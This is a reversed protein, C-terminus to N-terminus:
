GFYAELDRIREIETLRPHPRILPEDDLKWTLSYPIYVAWIGTRLAPNIDSKPSNGIMCVRDPKFGEDKMIKQYILDNKEPVVFAKTFFQGLGSGALKRNQEEPDGKTLLFLPYSGSLRHLIQRVDRFLVPPRTTHARFKHLIRRYSRCADASGSLFDHKEFLSELIFVFNKSGYGRDTVVQREFDDFVRDFGNNNSSYRECLRIFDARAREYYFNNKWLTDDADFILTNINEM